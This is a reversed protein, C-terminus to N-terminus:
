SGLALGPAIVEEAEEIEVEDFIVGDEYLSKTENSMVSAGKELQNRSNEPLRWPAKSRWDLMAFTEGRLFRQM